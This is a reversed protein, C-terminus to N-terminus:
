QVDTKKSAMKRSPMGIHLERSTALISAASGDPGRQEGTLTVLQPWQASHGHAALTSSDLSAPSKTVQGFSHQFSTRSRQGKTKLRKRRMSIRARTAEASYRTHLLTM